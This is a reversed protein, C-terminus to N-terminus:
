IGAPIMREFMLEVKRNELLEAGPPLSDFSKIFGNIYTYKRGLSPMSFVLGLQYSTRAQVSAGTIADFYELSPSNPSFTLTLPIAKPIYGRNLKGDVSMKGDAIEWAEAEWAKDSAWNELKFPASFLTEVTLFATANASTILKNAM